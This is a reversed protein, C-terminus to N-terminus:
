HSIISVVLGQFRVVGIVCRWLVQEGPGIVTLIAHETVVGHLLFEGDGFVLTRIMMLLIVMIVLLWNIGMLRLHLVLRVRYRLKLLLRLHHHALLLLKYRFVPLDCVLVCLSLYNLLSYLVSLM